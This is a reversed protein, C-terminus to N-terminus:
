EEPTDVLGRLRYVDAAERVLDATLSADFESELQAALEILEAYSARGPRLRDYILLVKENDLRTIEAARRLNQAVQAYGAEEATDAQHRLTEASIRFDDETLEQNLIADMTLDDLSKGSQTRPSAQKRNM